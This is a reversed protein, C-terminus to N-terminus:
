SYRAQGPAHGRDARACGGCAPRVARRAGGRPQVMSRTLGRDKWEEEKLAQKAGVGKGHAWLACERSLKRRAALEQAAADNAAITRIKPPAKPQTMGGAAAKAAARVM